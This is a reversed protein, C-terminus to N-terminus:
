VPFVLYRSQVAADLIAKRSRFRYGAPTDIIIDEFVGATLIGTIGTEEPTYVVSFNSRASITGDDLVRANIKQIFHRTSYEQYTGVWIKTVYTVRDELRARCDDLMFAIPFDNDVNERSTCIYSAEPEESFTDLWGTMNKFDLAEIYSTNLADIAGIQEATVANM